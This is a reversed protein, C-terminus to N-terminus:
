IFDFNMYGFSRIYIYISAIVFLMSMCVYMCVYM